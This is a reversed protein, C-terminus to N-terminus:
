LHNCFSCCYNVGCCQSMDGDSITKVQLAVLIQKRMCASSTILTEMNDELKPSETESPPLYMIAKAPIGHSGFRGVEQWYHLISSPPGWHIINCIDPIEIALKNFDVTSVLCRVNSASKQFAKPLEKLSVEDIGSYFMEVLTDGPRASPGAWYADGLETVFHGIIDTM